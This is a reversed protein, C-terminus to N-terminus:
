GRLKKAIARVKQEDIVYEGRSPADAPNEKSPVFMPQLWRNTVTLTAHLHQLEEAMQPSNSWGRTMSFLSATNDTVVVLPTHPRRGIEGRWKHVALTVARLELVSISEPSGLPFQGHALKMVDGCVYIAGWAAFPGHKAADTVVFDPPADPVTQQIITVVPDSQIFTHLAKLQSQVCPALKKPAMPTIAWRALAKWVFFNAPLQQRPMQSESPRFYARIYALMGVLSRLRAFTAHTLCLNIRSMFKERWQKKLRLTNTVADFTVGRHTVTTALPSRDGIQTRTEECLEEFKKSVRTIHEPSNAGFCINDIIVDAEVAGVLGARSIAVDALTESTTQATFVSNKHGMAPRKLRFTHNGSIRGVYKRAVEAALAFQFYFARFDYASFFSNRAFFQPLTDGPGSIGRFHVTGLPRAFANAFLTDIIIRNRPPVKTGEPSLFGFISTPTKIDDPCDVEVIAKEEMSKLQEMSFRSKKVHALVAPPIGFQRRIQTVDDNNVEHLEPSTLWARALKIDATQLGAQIAAAIVADMDISASRADFLHLPWESSDARTAWPDGQLAHEALRLGFLRALRRRMKTMRARTLDLGQLNPTISSVDLPVAGDKDSDDAVRGM